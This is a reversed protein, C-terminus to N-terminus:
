TASDLLADIQDDSSVRVPEGPEHMLFGQETEEKPAEIAQASSPENGIIQLLTVRRNDVNTINDPTLKWGKMRAVLETARISADEDGYLGTHIMRALLPLRNAEADELDRDIIAKCGPTDFVQAALEKGGGPGFGLRRIAAHRLGKERVFADAAFRDRMAEPLELWDEITRQPLELSERLRENEEKLEQYRKSANGHGGRREKEKRQSPLM